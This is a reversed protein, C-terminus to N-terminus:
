DSFVPEDDERGRSLERMQEPPERYITRNPRADQADKDRDQSRFCCCYIIIGLIILAAVVGGAIGAYLAINMSPPTVALTMNCQEEGVENRATCVFYGSMDMSINKLALTQGTGPPVLPREHNQSDYSRWSYQPAPSGEESQCSLEINNGIVTEGQISCVPKSPAVLVLLRVRAQSTGYLDSLLSVSCEYTGNDTMTLGRITISADSVEVNPSVNVRDRYNEGYIPAESGFKWIIVRETHTKLLKDWQILGQRDPATTSYSCPLTVNKGRAARLVEPPSQVQIAGVSAWVMWFICLGLKEPGKM